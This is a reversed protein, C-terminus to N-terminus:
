ICKVRVCKLYDYLLYSSAVPFRKSSFDTLEFVRGVVESPSMPTEGGVAAAAIVPKLKVISGPPAGKEFDV